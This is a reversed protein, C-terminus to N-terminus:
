GVTGFYLLLMSLAILALDLLKLRLNREKFVWAGFVFSVLVSGRRVMSVVSIMADADSLAQYYLYDALSLFCPIMVITWRWEFPTSSRRQPWWLCGLIVSMLLLQYIYFWSQVFMPDLRQMIFKDYLGSVAGTVVALVLCAIWKADKLGLGDSRGSYGLLFVGACAVLVGAWQWANLREGFLTVAGVLVLMPRVANLPGVITLPLHKIAFYGFVWSSLVIAAKILVYRHVEWGAVDFVHFVGSAANPFYSGVVWPLFLLASLLVNVFLVPLVANGRLSQKKFVDYFGLLLASGFALLIWM